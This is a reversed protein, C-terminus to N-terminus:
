LDISYVQSLTILLVAVGVTHFLERGPDLDGPLNLYVTTESSALQRARPNRHAMAISWM